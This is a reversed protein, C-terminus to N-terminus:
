GGNTFELKSILTTGPTFCVKDLLVL